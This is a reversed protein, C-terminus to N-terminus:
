DAGQQLAGLQRRFEADAMIEDKSPALGITLALVFTTLTIALLLPLLFSEGSVGPMGSVMGPHVHMAAMGTYHMGSVAAGMVLSAAVTARIGSVWTGIWLAATGAFIAIAVSAIFLPVNYSMTDSM